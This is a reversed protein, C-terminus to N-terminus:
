ERKNLTGYNTQLCELYELAQRTTMSGVCFGCIIQGSPTEYCEGEEVEDRYIDEGCRDCYCVPPPTPASPCRPHHPSQFCKLCWM